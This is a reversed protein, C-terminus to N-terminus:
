RGRDGIHFSQGRRGGQGGGPSVGIEVATCLVLKLEEAGIKIKKM